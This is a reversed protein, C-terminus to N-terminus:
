PGQRPSPLVEIGVPSSAIELGEFSLAIQIVHRGPTLPLRAEGPLRLPLDLFEMDPKLPQLRAARAQRPPCPYKRGNLSVSHLPIPDSPAFAFTRRGLNRIDVKFTPTEQPHWLRKTPRLRCQLGETPPGWTPATWQVRGPRKAPGATQRACGSWAVLVLISLFTITGKLDTM